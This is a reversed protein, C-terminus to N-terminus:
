LWGRERYWAVTTALQEELSGTPRYDLQNRLKADDCVWGRASTERAKDLNILCPRSRLRGIAEGMAGVGWFAAVFLPVPVVLWGAAAGALRGFEGYTVNREAAIYYVGEGSAAGADSKPAREGRLAIEILGRCLDDVYVVSVPWRRFGPTPHLPLFKMGRFMQLSARDGPGFVIPPRVVSAPVRDAVAALEREAELKSRGYHSVPEAADTERRPQAFTGPGGAALSSTMVLVPPPSQAACAQAVRRTGEVNDRAFEERRLAKTRGAIHFVVDVGHVAAALSAEDDLSGFVLEVHLRELEDANSASRILGRVRWGADRAIRALNSGVFGSAGTILCSPM